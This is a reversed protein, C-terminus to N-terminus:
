YIMTIIINILKMTIVDIEAHLFSNIVNITESVVLLLGRLPLTKFMSWSYGPAMCPLLEIVQEAGMCSIARVQLAEMCPHGVELM